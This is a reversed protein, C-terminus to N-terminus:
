RGKKIILRDPDRPDRIHNGHLLLWEAELEKSVKQVDNFQASGYGFLWTTDWYHRVDPDGRLGFSHPCQHKDKSFFDYSWGSYLLLNSFTNQGTFWDLPWTEPLQKEILDLDIFNKPYACFGINMEAKNKEHPSTEHSCMVTSLPNKIWRIVESPRRLVLIDSDFSIIKEGQSLLAFDFLQRSNVFGDRYEKSATKGELLPNVISDATDKSIIRIGDIHHEIEDKDDGSLSGDDHVVVAINEYFRLFSKIALLYEDKQRSCTLSHIEVDSKPNCRLRPLRTVRSFGLNVDTKWSVYDENIEDEIRTTM